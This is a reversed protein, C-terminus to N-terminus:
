LVRVQIVADYLFIEKRKNENRHENPYKIVSTTNIVFYNRNWYRWFGGHQYELYICWEPLEPTEEAYAVETENSETPPEEKQEPVDETNETTSPPQLPPQIESPQASSRKLLFTGDPQPSFSQHISPVPTSKMPQSPKPQSVNMSHINIRSSPGSRSSQSGNPIRQSYLSPTRNTTPIHTSKPQENSSSLGRRNQSSSKSLSSPLHNSSHTPPTSRALSPPQRENLM